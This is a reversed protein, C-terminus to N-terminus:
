SLSIGVFEDKQNIDLSSDAELMTELKQADGAIALGHITNLDNADNEPAGMTSVYVGTGTIIGKTNEGEDDADRVHSGDGTIAGSEWGLSEAIELYRAEAAGDPDPHTSYKKGADQWSDWKARGAFELLGPRSTNPAHSVTVFKFLGYL